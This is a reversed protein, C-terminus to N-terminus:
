SKMGKAVPSVADARGVVEFIAVPRTKGKVVVEGLPKL